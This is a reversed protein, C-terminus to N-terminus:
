FIFDQRIFIKKINLITNLVHNLLLLELNSYSMINFCTKTGKSKRFTKFLGQDYISESKIIKLKFLFILATGNVLILWQPNKSAACKIFPNFDPIKAKFLISFDLHYSFIGAM